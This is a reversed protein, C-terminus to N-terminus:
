RREPSKVWYKPIDGQQEKIRAISAGIAAEVETKSANPMMQQVHPRLHGRMARNSLRGEKAIAKEITDLNM